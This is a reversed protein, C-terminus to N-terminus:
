FHVEFESIIGIFAGMQQVLKEKHQPPVHFGCKRLAQIVSGIVPEGVPLCFKVKPFKEILRNKLAKIVIGQTDRRFVGGTLVVEVEEKASFLKEIAVAASLALEEGNAQLIDRAVQDGQEAAHFVLPVLNAIPYSRSSYHLIPTFDALNEVGLYRTISNYLSTAPGRGDFGRQAAAMAQFAIERGGAFDGFERGLGGVQLRESNKNVAVCNSGTGCIIVVGYGESTGFILSAISDNDLEFNATPSIEQIFRHIISRDEETDLGSVAYFGCKLESPSLRAYIQAQQISREINKQSTEVGVLKYNAAGGQGVSVLDGAANAIACITKSGGADIGFIYSM